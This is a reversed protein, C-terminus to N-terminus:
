ALLASASRWLMYGAVAFILTAFVKTLKGSDALRQAALTGVMGGAIGGAIFVAALPWDIMGSIAYNHATTLGFAAVAM